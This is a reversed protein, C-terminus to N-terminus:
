YVSIGGDVDLRTSQWRSWTIVADGTWKFWSGPLGVSAPVQYSNSYFRNGYASGFLDDPGVIGAIVFSSQKGDGFTYIHSNTPAKVQQRLGRPEWSITVEASNGPTSTRPTVSGATM